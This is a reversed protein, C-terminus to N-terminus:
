DKICRVSLGSRVDLAYGDAEAHRFGMSRHFAYGAASQTSTWFASLYTLEQFSGMYNRYGGPLANFGSSNDASTNPSAWHNTGTEKMKGGAVASEGLATIMDAWETETPVHWGTPCLKGSNVSYWNYLKGYIASNAPANDYDCWAPTTLGSWPGNSTVNAIDTGDNLKMTRLSEKMWLEGGIKVTSYTNGDVDSVIDSEKKCGQLLGTLLVIIACISYFRM